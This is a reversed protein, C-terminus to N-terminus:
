KHSVDTNEWLDICIMNKIQLVREYNVEREKGKPDIVCFHIPLDGLGCRDLRQLKKLLDRVSPRSM